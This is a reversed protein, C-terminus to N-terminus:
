VIQELKDSCTKMIDRIELKLSKLKLLLADKEEDTLEKPCLTGKVKHVTPNPLDVTVKTYEEFDPDKSYSESLVDWEGWEEEGNM